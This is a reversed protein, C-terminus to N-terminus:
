EEDLDAWLRIPPLERDRYQEWMAVWQENEPKVELGADDAARILSQYDVM